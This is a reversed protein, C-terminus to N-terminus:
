SRLLAADPARDLDLRFQAALDLQDDPEPGYDARAHIAYAEAFERALARYLAITIQVLAGHATGTNATAVTDRKADPAAEEPNSKSDAEKTKEGGGPGPLEDALLSPGHLKVLLPRQPRRALSQQTPSPASTKTLDRFLEDGLDDVVRQVLTTKGAGRYGSILFARGA